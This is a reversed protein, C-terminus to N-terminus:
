GLLGAARLAAAAGEPGRVREARLGVARAAKVNPENDDLFFVREAPCGLAAIVREFIERDPKLAGLEHSSFCHDLAEGLGMEGLFRPWHLANCNTLCGVRLRGRLARLLDLAGPYLGRPWSEFRSLFAAPSLELSLERVIEEAFARADIRGSEFRRVAECSLWRAWVAAGEEAGARGAPLPPGDLEVLVGGLDFLVVEVTGGHSAAAGPRAAEPGARARSGVGRPSPAPM